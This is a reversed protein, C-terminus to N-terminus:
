LRLLRAPLLHISQQTMHGSDNASQSNRLSRAKNLVVVAKAGLVHCLFVPIPVAGPVHSVEESDTAAEACDKCISRHGCPYFLANEFCIM